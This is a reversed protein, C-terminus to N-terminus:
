MRGEIIRDLTEMHEELSGVMGELDFAMEEMTQGQESNQLGEPLNEYAQIEDEKVSEVVSYATSLLDMVKKLEKRRRANM